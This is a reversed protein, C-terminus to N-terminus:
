RFFMLDLIRRVMGIMCEWVVGMYFFYFVNFIWIIGYCDLYDKFLEDEINVVNIKM